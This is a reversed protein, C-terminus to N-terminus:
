YTGAGHWAMRIFFPGYHGYDAPWWDQSTTLLDKIDKKLAEMDLQQFRTAYDFDAGWPNSEPSHLRLPTLDLTEPYYFNQTEKKDAAVATSFSGSLALLILVPLTKKIM